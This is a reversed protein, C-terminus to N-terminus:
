GRIAQGFSIQWKSKAPSEEIKEEAGAKKIVNPISSNPEGLFRDIVLVITSYTLDL